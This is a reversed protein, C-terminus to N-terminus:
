DGHRDPHGHGAASENAVYATRGDPTIAIWAPGSGVHVPQGPTNTATSIPTVTNSALSAVYATQGDPSVAVFDPGFTGSGGLHIPQGARNTATSIPIVTGTGNTPVYATKGDPTIAIQGGQIAIAGDGVRIPKGARGAAPSVPIVVASDRTSGHAIDYPVYVTPGASRHQAAPRAQHGFAGTASPIAVAIVAAAAVGAAMGSVRLRQRRAARRVRQEPDQWAPLSWRPDRLLRRLGEETKDEGSM